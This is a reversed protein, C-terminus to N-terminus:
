MKHWSLFWPTITMYMPVLVLTWDCSLSPFRNISLWVPPGGGTAREVRCSAVVSLEQVLLQLPPFLLDTVMLSVEEEAM